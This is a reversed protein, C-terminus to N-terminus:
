FPNFGDGIFDFLFYIHLCSAEAKKCFKLYGIIESLVNNSLFFFLNVVLTSSTSTLRPTGDYQPRPIMMQWFLATIMTELAVNPPPWLPCLGGPIVAM